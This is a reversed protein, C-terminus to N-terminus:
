YIKQNLTDIELNQQKNKLEDDIEELLTEVRM